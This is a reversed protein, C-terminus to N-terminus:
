GDPPRCFVPPRHQEAGEQSLEIAPTVAIVKHDCTPLSIMERMLYILFVTIASKIPSFITQDQATQKRNCHKAEPNQSKGEGVGNTRKQVYLGPDKM